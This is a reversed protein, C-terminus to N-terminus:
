EEEELPIIWMIHHKNIILVKTDHVQLTTDSIVLFPDTERNLRDSLRSYAHINMKGQFTTGDIMKVMVDVMNTDRVM